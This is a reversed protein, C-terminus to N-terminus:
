WFSTASRYRPMSRRFNKQLKGQIDLLAVPEEVLRQDESRAEHGERQEREAREAEGPLIEAGVRDLLDQV